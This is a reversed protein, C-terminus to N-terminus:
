LIDDDSEEYIESEEVDFVINKIEQLQGEENGQLIEKILKLKEEDSKEKNPIFSSIKVEQKKVRSKCSKMTNPTSIHFDITRSQSSKATMPFNMFSGSKRMINEKNMVCIKREPLDPNSSRRASPNYDSPVGHKEVLKKFLQIM